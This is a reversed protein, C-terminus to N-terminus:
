DRAVTSIRGMMLQDFPLIVAHDLQSSLYTPVDRFTLFIYRIFDHRTRWASVLDRFAQLAMNYVSRMMDWWSYFADWVRQYIADIQSGASWLPRFRIQHDFVNEIDCASSDAGITAQGFGDWLRRFTDTQRDRPLLAIEPVGFGPFGTGEKRTHAYISDAYLVFNLTAPFDITLLNNNM